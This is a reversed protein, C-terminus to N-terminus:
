KERDSKLKKVRKRKNDEGYDYNYAQYYKYYARYGYRKTLNVKNIICGLITGQVNLIGKKFHRLADRTTEGISSVLVVGGVQRSLVLIDAFGHHPPADLIIRDFKQNCVAMLETFRNSALLEVPNPPIPGSPVFWLNDIDTKQILNKDIVGALYSSLGPRTGDSWQTFIKHLHPKRLDADMLLVKEESGAFAFALNAALTTKGEEPATSTIMFCKSLADAGSLQLSVKTTRIAESIPARPESVFAKDLVYDGSKALPVVGLIPIQFRESIQDPNTITDAFYELLFALGIGGMLGVVIALLLNLRVNPKFPFIPLLARDVIHINSSSVGVMSEIEKARELLSQYIGKNTEVERAIIKYQTARENLDIALTKQLSVREQLATRKKLATQYENEIAKFIKKEEIHIREGISLMRSKLNKVEPYDDLFTTTLDQYQSVLRAYDAKLNAIVLNSLVRPLSAPGDKIAQNYIARKGIMEAEARALATNLEGLQSYVSNLKTDLSVIGSMRAFRNLEEEVKELNIKSQYIQKTLFERALQSAELKQDMKWRVFEEILTNVVDQSLHRDPSTFSISILNSNRQLIPTLNGNVFGILGQQKLTEKPIVPRKATEEKKQPILSRVFEKISARASKKEKGDKALSLVPHEGLNMKDIVRQILTTSKLMSVQAQYFERASALAATVEEFKTVRPADRNAEIVANAKYIKTATLTFILTSIFVLALFGFILWKRRAIVELYDRLHVEEGEWDPAAQRFETSPLMEENDRRVPAPAIPLD